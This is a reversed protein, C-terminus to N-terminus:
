AFDLTMNPCFVHSHMCMCIKLRQIYNLTNKARPFLRFLSLKRWLLILLHILSVLVQWLRICVSIEAAVLTIYVWLFSLGDGSVSSM